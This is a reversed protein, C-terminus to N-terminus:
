LPPSRVQHPKPAGPRFHTATRGCLSLIRKWSSIGPIEPLTRQPCCLVFGRGWVWGHLVTFGRVSSAPKEPHTLPCALLLAQRPAPSTASPHHAAGMRLGGRSTHLRLLEPPSATGLVGLRHSRRLPNGWEPGQRAGASSLFAEKQLLSRQAHHSRLCGPHILLSAPHGGLFRSPGSGVGM